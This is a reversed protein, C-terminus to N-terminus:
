ESKDHIQASPFNARRKERAANVGERADASLFGLMEIGLSADFIPGAMRM